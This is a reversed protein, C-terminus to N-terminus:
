NRSKRPKRNTTNRWKTSNMISFFNFLRLGVEFLKFLKGFVYRFPLFITKLLLYRGKWNWNKMQNFCSIISGRMLKAKLSISIFLNCSISLSDPGNCCVYHNLDRCKSWLDISHMSFLEKVEISIDFWKMTASKQNFHITYM